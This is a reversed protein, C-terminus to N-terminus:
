EADDASTMRKGPLRVVSFFINGGGSSVPVTDVFSTAETRVAM